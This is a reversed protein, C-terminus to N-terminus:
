KLNNANGPQVFGRRVDLTTRSCLTSASLIQSAPKAGRIPLPAPALPPSVTAGPHGARSDAAPRKGSPVGRSSAVLLGSVFIVPSRHPDSKRAFLTAPVILNVRHSPLNSTELPMSTKIERPEHRVNPACRDPYLSAPNGRLWHRGNCSHYRYEFGWCGPCQYLQGGLAPTRCSRIKKLVQRQRAPMAPGFRELYDPALREILQHVSLSQDGDGTISHM